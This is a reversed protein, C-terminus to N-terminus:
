DMNYTSIESPTAEWTRCQVVNYIGEPIVVPLHEPHSLKVPENVRIRCSTWKPKNFNTMVEVPSELNHREFNNVWGDSIFEDDTKVFVQDGQQTVVDELPTNSYMWQLGTVLWSNIPNIDGSKTRFPNVRHFHIHYHDDRNEFIILFSPYGRATPTGTLTYYTFGYKHEGHTEIDKYCVQGLHSTGKKVLVYDQAYCYQTQRGYTVDKLYPVYVVRKENDVIPTFDGRKTGVNIKSLDACPIATWEEGSEKTLFEPLDYLIYHFYSMYNPLYTSRGRNEDVIERVQTPYKSLMEEWLEWVSNILFYAEKNPLFTNLPISDELVAAKLLPYNDIELDQIRQSLRVFATKNVKSKKKNYSDLLYYPFRPDDTNYKELFDILEQKSKMKNIEKNFITTLTVKNLVLKKRDHLSYYDETYASKVFKDFEIYQTTTLDKLWGSVKSIARSIGEFEALYEENYCGVQNYTSITTDSTSWLFDLKSEYPADFMFPVKYIRLSKEKGTYRWLRTRTYFDPNELNIYGVLSLEYYDGKDELWDEKILYEWAFGVLEKHNYLSTVYYYDNNENRFGQHYEKYEDTAKGNIIINTM